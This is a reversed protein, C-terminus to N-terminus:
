CNSPWLCYSTPSFNNKNMSGEGFHLVHNHPSLLLSHHVESEKPDSSGTMNILPCLNISHLIKVHCAAEWFINKQRFIHLHQAFRAGSTHRGTVGSRSDNSLPSGTVGHLGMAPITVLPSCHVLYHHSIGMIHLISHWMHLYDTGWTHCLHAVVCGGGPNLFPPLHIILIHWLGHGWSPFYLRYKPLFEVM